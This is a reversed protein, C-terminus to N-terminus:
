KRTKPPNGSAAQSRNGRGRLWARRAREFAEEPAAPSAPRAEAAPGRAVGSQRTARGEEAPGPPGTYVRVETVVPHDLGANVRAQIEERLYGLEHAWAPSDARVRLVGERLSSPRAHGAIEAGVLEEWRGWVAGAKSPDPLGLRRSLKALAERIGHPGQLADGM